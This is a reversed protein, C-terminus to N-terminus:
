FVEKVFYKGFLANEPKINGHTVKNDHLDKLGTLLQQVKSKPDEISKLVKKYKELNYECLQLAVYGFNGDKATDIYPVINKTSFELNVLKKLTKEIKSFQSLPMRKIALETGDHWLGLFVNQTIQFRKEPVFTLNGVPTMQSDQMNALQKM